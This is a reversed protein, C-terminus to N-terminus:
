ADCTASGVNGVAHSVCTLEGCCGVMLPGTMLCSGGEEICPDCVMSLGSVGGASGDGAIIHSACSLGECCHGMVCNGGQEICRECTQSGFLSVCSLEECCSGGGSCDGGEGICPDLCLLEHTGDDYYYPLCALGDCCSFGGNPCSHGFGICSVCTYKVFQPHIFLECFLGNCCIGDPNGDPNGDPICVDGEEVCDKCPECTYTPFAGGYHDYVASSDTAASAAPGAIAGKMLAPIVPSALIHPRLAAM